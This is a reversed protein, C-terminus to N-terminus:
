FYHYKKEEVLRNKKDYTKQCHVLGDQEVNLIKIEKSVIKGKRNYNIQEVFVEKNNKSISNYAFYLKGTKSYSSRHFNMSDKSWYNRSVSSFTNFNKGQFYITTITDKATDLRTVRKFQKNKEFVIETFEIVGTGLKNQTKCVQTHIIKKNPAAIKGCQMSITQILKNQSNYVSVTALSNEKNYQYYATKYVMIKKDLSKAVEMRGLSDYVYTTQYQLKNKKYEQYQIEQFQGNRKYQITFTRKWIKKFGFERYILQNEENYKSYNYQEVNGKVNKEERSIAIGQNYKIESTKILKDKRKSEIKCVTKNLLNSDRYPKFFYDFRNPHPLEQANFVHQGSAIWVAFVMLFLSVCSKM